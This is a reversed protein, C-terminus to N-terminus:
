IQASEKNVKLFFLSATAQFHPREAVTPRARYLVGIKNKNVQGMLLLYTKYLAPTLSRQNADQISNLYVEPQVSLTTNTIIEAIQNSPTVIIFRAPAVTAHVVYQVSSSTDAAVPAALFLGVILVLIPGGFKRM